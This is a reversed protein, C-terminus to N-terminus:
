QTDWTNIIRGDGRNKGGAKGKKKRKGADPLWIGDPKLTLRTKQSEQKSYTFTRATLFYIDDIDDPISVVRVRQGPTWPPGTGTDRFVRYGCVEARITLAGFKGDAITKRAIKAAYAPSEADGDIITKPRYIGQEILLADSESEKIDHQGRAAATGHAQALVTIESHYGSINQDIDLDLVNTRRSKIDSDLFLTGVPPTTYDPGGIVLTGDPDFWAHCGNLECAYAIADWASMGPDISVKERLGDTQIRTRAIGFTKAITNVVTELTVNKATFIPASCDCLVAAMDRGTITIAREKHNTRRRIRDIRGSLVVDAGISLSVKQWLRLPVDPTKVPAAVTVTWDDAPILLDSDAEVNKWRSHERGNVSLIVEDLVPKNSPM